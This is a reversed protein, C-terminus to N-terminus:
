ARSPRSDRPGHKKMPRASRRGEVHRHWGSVEVDVDRAKLAADKALSAEIRSELTSDDVKSCGPHRNTGRRVGDRAPGAVLLAGVIGVALVNKFLSMRKEKRAELAQHKRLVDNSM